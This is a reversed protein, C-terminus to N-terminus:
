KEPLARIFLTEVTNFQYVPRKPTVRNFIDIVPDIAKRPIYDDGIIVPLHGDRRVHPDIADIIIHTAEGHNQLRKIADPALKQWDTVLSLRYHHYDRLSLPASSFIELDSTIRISTPPLLFTRRYLSLVFVSKFPMTMFPAESKLFALIAPHFKFTTFDTLSGLRLINTEDLTFMATIARLTNTVVSSPIFEDWTPVSIGRRDIFPTLDDGNIFPQFAGASWTYTPNPYKPAVINEDRHKVLQNHIILPYFMTCDIPKDYHFKYSFSITWADGTDDDRTGQEPVGDFEFWGVIRVQRDAVAWVKATGSQNTLISARKTFHDTLWTDFDVHYPAVNERLRHLEELIFVFEHPVPYHYSLSHVNMERGSSIKSRMENRWRLAANKDPARYRFNITTATESYVPKIYAEITDDAFIFINEARAVATSLMRDVVDTEDVEITIKENYAYRNPDDEGHNSISSNLQKGREIEGMYFINTRDSIGTIEFIQRTIDIVVPRTISEISEPVSLTVIPM